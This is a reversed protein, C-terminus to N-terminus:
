ARADAPNGQTMADHGVLADAEASVRNLEDELKQRLRAIEAEDTERPVTIPEGWVMAGRGFPLPIILNDWTGLVIRRSVSVSTPLISAGSLRALMLVGDGARMRPGRPGDPTVGISAGNKVLRVLTRIAESGGRTSSGAVADIGFHSVTNAILRGDPHSSILMHFPERSPWCAPMMALRNHWFSVIVPKEGAWSPAAVAGNVTRWRTSAKVLGMLAAALAALVRQVAPKRGFHKTLKGM